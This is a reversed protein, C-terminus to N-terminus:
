ESWPLRAGLGHQIKEAARADNADPHVSPSHFTSTPTVCVAVRGEKEMMAQVMPRAAEPVPKGTMVAGVEMARDVIYRMDTNLEADGDIVLYEPPWSLGGQPGDLM